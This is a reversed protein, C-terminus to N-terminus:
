YMDSVPGCMLMMANPIQSLDIYTIDMKTWRNNYRMYTISNTKTESM